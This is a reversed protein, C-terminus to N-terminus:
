KHCTLCDISAQRQRHCDMCFGMNIDRALVAQEMHPVDGHCETCAVGRALHREHNFNVHDPQRWVRPFELVEGKGFAKILEQVGAKDKGAFKHCGMCTKASAIGAIASHRAYPHCVGCGIRNDTVHRKHNFGHFPGATAASTGADARAPQAAELRACGAGGVLLALAAMRHLLARM